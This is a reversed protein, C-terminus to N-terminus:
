VNEDWEISIETADSPIELHSVVIKAFVEKEVRRLVVERRLTGICLYFRRGDLEVDNSEFRFTLDGNQARIGHGRLNDSQWKWIERREENGSKAAWATRQAFAAQLSERAQRLSEIFRTRIATSPQAVQVEMAPLTLGVPVALHYRGPKMGLFVVRRVKNVIAERLPQVDAIQVPSGAIEKSLEHRMPHIYVAVDRLGDDREYPVVFASADETRAYTCRSTDIELQSFLSKLVEQAKSSNPM